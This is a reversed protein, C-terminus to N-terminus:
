KLFTLGTLSSALHSLSVAPLSLARQTGLVNVDDSNSSSVENDLYNSPGNNNHSALVSGVRPQFHVPLGTASLPTRAQSKIFHYYLFLSKMLFFFIFRKIECSLSHLALCLLIVVFERLMQSEHAFDM